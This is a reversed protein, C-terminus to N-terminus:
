LRNTYRVPPQGRTITVNKPVPLSVRRKEFVFGWDMRLDYRGRFKTDSLAWDADAGGGGLIHLEFDVVGDHNRDYYTTTWQVESQQTTPSACAALVALPLLWLPRM